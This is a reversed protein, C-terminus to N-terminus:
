SPRESQDLRIPDSVPPNFNLANRCFDVFEPTVQVFIVNEDLFVGDTVTFDEQVYLFSDDTLERAVEVEKGDLGKKEPRANQADETWGSFERLRTIPYAKCYRGMKAM